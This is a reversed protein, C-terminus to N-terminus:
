SIAEPWAHKVRSNRATSRGFFFTYRSPILIEDIKNFGQAMIDCNTFPDLKYDEM